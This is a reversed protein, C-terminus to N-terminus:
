KLGTIILGSVFYRQLFIFLVTNPIISLVVGANIVTPQMLERREAEFATLALTLPRLREKDIYLLPGLLDNWAWIFHLTAVTALSGTTLPVAIQVFTRLPNCGDIRASDILEGPITLMHQRLLFTAFASGGLWGPVILAWLNDYLGVSKLILFRPIMIISFPVMMTVITLNFILQRGRFDIKALAYAAAACTVVVGSTAGIAIIASNAYSRAISLTQFVKVYNALTLSEPLVRGPFKIFASHERFTSSLLWIVPIFFLATIVVLVVKTAVDNNRKLTGPKRM